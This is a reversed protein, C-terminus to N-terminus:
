PEQRSGDDPGLFSGMTQDDINCPDTEMACIRVKRIIVPNQAARALDLIKTNTSVLTQDFPVLVM